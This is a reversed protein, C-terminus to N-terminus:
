LVNFTDEEADVGTGLIFSYQGKTLGDMSLSYTHKGMKVQLLGQGIRHGYMDTISWRLTTESKGYYSFGMQGSLPYRDMVLRTFKGNDLVPIYEGLDLAAIHNRGKVASTDRHKGNHVQNNRVIFPYLDVVENFTNDEEIYGLFAFSCTRNKFSFNTGVVRRCVISKYQGGFRSGLVTVTDGERLSDAGTYSLNVSVNYHREGYDNNVQASIIRATMPLVTTQQAQFTPIIAMVVLFLIYNKM